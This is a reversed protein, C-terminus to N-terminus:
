IRNQETSNMGHYSILYRAHSIAAAPQRLIEDARQPRATMTVSVAEVQDDIRGACSTPDHAHGDFTLAIAHPLGQPCVEPQPARIDDGQVDGSVPSQFISPERPLADIWLEILLHHHGAELLHGPGNVDFPQWGPLVWLM